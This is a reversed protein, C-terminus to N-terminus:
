PLSCLMPQFFLLHESPDGLGLLGLEWCAAQANDTVLQGLAVGGGGDQGVWGLSVDRLNFTVELKSWFSDAFAPYMDLVELLDARQIKHLDCYTLARVDASSKGPQAHLSVPEGFIDNKGTLWPAPTERPDPELSEKLARGQPGRTWSREKM